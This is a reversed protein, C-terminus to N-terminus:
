QRYVEIEMTKDASEAKLLSRIERYAKLVRLGKSTTRYITKGNTETSEILKLKLLFSVYDNLQRFSLNARYMIQTKLSGDIAVDLVEAIIYLRDRGRRQFVM